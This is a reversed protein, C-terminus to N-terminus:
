HPEMQTHSQWDCCKKILMVQSSSCLVTSWSVSCIHFFHKHCMRQVRRKNYVLNSLCDIIIILYARILLKFFNDLEMGLVM